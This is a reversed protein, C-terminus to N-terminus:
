GHHIRLKMFISRKSDGMTSVIIAQASVMQGDAAFFDFSNLM